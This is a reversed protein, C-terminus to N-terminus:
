SEALPMPVLFKMELQGEECWRVLELGTPVPRLIYDKANPSTSLIAHLQALSAGDDWAAADLAALLEEEETPNPDDDDGGCLGHKSHCSGIWYNPYPSNSGHFGGGIVAYSNYPPNADEEAVTNYGHHHHCARLSSGTAGLCNQAMLNDCGICTDGDDQAVAPVAMLALAAFAGLYAYRRM